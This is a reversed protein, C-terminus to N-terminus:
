GVVITMEGLGTRSSLWLNYKETYGSSNTFDFNEVALYMGASLKTEADTFTPTGYPSRNPMAFAHQQGSGANATFKLDRSNQLNKSLGAMIDEVDDGENCVGYYVGNLFTFSGSRTATEGKKGTVTLTYTRNSNIYGEYSKNRVDLGLTEASQGDTMTQSVPYKTLGWYISPAPVSTGIEYPGAGVCSFLSIAINEYNMDEIINTVDQEVKTLREMASDLAASITNLPEATLEHVIDEIEERSRENRAVVNGNGDVGLIKGPEWGSAKLAAINERAQAMQEPTLTQVLFSVFDGTGILGSIEEITPVLEENLFVKILNAARDFKAQLEEATLNNDKNPFTGLTQIINVDENFKPIQM